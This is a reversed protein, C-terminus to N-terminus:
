ACASNTPENAQHRAVKKEFFFCFVFGNRDRPPTHYEINPVSRGQSQRGTTAVYAITTRRSYRDSQNARSLFINTRPLCLPSPRRSYSCSPMHLHNPFTHAFAPPKGARPVQRLRSLSSHDRVSPAQSAHLSARGM